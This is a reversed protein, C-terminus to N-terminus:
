GAKLPPLKAEQLKGNIDDWLGMETIRVRLASVKIGLQRAVRALDGSAELVMTRMRESSRPPGPAKPFGHKEALADIEDWLKLREVFRYFSRHTTNLIRAAVRRDGNGQELAGLIRKKAEESDVHILAGITSISM